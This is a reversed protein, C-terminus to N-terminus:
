IKSKLAVLVPSTKTYLVGFCIKLKSYNTKAVPKYHTPIANQKYGYKVLSFAFYCPFRGMLFHKIGIKASSM